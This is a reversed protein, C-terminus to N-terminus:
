PKEKWCSWHGPGDALYLHQGWLLRDQEQEYDLGAEAMAKEHSPRHIQMMGKSQGHDGIALGPHIVLGYRSECPAVKEIFRVFRDDLCVVGEHTAWATETPGCLGTIGLTLATISELIM